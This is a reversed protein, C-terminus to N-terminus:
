IHEDDKLSRVFKWGQPTRVFAYATVGDIFVDYTAPAAEEQV